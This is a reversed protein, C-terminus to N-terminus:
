NYGLYGDLFYFYENRALRELMQDIFPLPFHDKRTVKNLRRYDICISWGTVIRTPLLENKKNIVVTTGGKKPVVQVPSVWSRDSIHYIVGADLWKFVEKRVVEKMPPNLCRQTDVTLKNDEELLIRHMCMSPMIGNIDVLSWGIEEKHEKLIKLLKDEEVNSLSSSIFVLLTSEERLYAYRLHNPLQKGEVIPPKEISPTLRSPNAGLSEFYKRRNPSFSDRRNVYEQVIEYEFSSPDDHTLNTKLPESPVLQSSMIAELMDVRFSSDTDHPHKIANFVNFKVEVEQFRLRLEGKKVDIM